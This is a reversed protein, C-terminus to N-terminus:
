DFRSIRMMLVHSHSRGDTPAPLVYVRRRQRIIQPTLCAAENMRPPFSCLLTCDNGQGLRASPCAPRHSSGSSPASAIGYGCPQTLCEFRWSTMPIKSPVFWIISRWQARALCGVSAASFYYIMAFRLYFDLCHATRLIVTVGPVRSVDIM